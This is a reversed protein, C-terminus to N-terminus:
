GRSGRSPDAEPASGRGRRDKKRSRRSPRYRGHYLIIVFPSLMFSSVGLAVSSVTGRVWMAATCWWQPSYGTRATYGRLVLPRWARWGPAEQTNTGAVTFAPSVM